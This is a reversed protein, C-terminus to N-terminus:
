YGLWDLITVGKSWAFEPVGDTFQDYDASHEDFIQEIAWEPANGEADCTDLFSQEYTMM